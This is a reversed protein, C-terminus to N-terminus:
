RTLAIFLVKKYTNFDNPTAKDTRVRMCVWIDEESVWSCEIIKGSFSAPDSDDAFWKCTFWTFSRGILYGLNKNQKNFDIRQVINTSKWHYRRKGFFSFSSDFSHEVLESVYSWFLLWLFYYCRNGTGILFFFFLHRLRPIFIFLDLGVYKM